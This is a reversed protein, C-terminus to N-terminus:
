LAVKGKGSHGDDGSGRGLRRRRRRGKKDDDEAYYYNGYYYKNYYSGQVDVANLVAGIIDTDIDRLRKVCRRVLDRDNENHKIVMVMMDCVSALVVTDALNAVPPSDVIVWDYRSKLTDLLAKFKTTGVLEPPNPPIPGCALAFLNPTSTSQLFPEFEGDKGDLLYNTVGPERPIDLHKHQTPRRLDCDVVVVTDGASALAKAVLEVTGSKGEQPGASSFLLIRKERNGSSFLISTRLSQFAERAGHEEPSRFKPIIALVSLGLFQEIEDPTHITNDLYDLFLAAGVGLLLGM